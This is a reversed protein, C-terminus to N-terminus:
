AAKDPNFIQPIKWYLAPLLNLVRECAVVFPDNQDMPNGKKIVTELKSQISIFTALLMSGNSIQYHDLTKDKNVLKAAVININENLVDVEEKLQKLTM